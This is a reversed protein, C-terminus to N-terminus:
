SKKGGASVSTNNSRRKFPMVFLRSHPSCLPLVFEQGGHQFPTEVLHRLPPQECLASKWMHTPCGLASFFARGEEIRCPLIAPYFYRQQHRRPRLALTQDGMLDDLICTWCDLAMLVELLANQWVPNLHIKWHAAGKMGGWGTKRVQVFSGRRTESAEHDVKVGGCAILFDRKEGQRENHGAEVWIQWGRKREQM